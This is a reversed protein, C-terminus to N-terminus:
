LEQGDIKDLRQENGGLRRGGIMLDRSDFLWNQSTGTKM